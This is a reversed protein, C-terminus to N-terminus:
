TPQEIHHGGMRQWWFGVFFGTLGWLVAHLTLSKAVFESALHAPVGSIRPDGLHPAGLLHPSLILAVGSLRVWSGDNRLILWLGAATTAVTAFWWAQRAGLDAAAMGPLEPPLGLAPALGTSIFGAAAWIMARRENIPDGSLLMGALLILAFGVGTAITAIGTYFTREIGDRPGWQDNDGESASGPEPHDHVLILRAESGNFEAATTMFAASDESRTAHEYTEAELIIPTTSFEQLVAVALGALAGALLGVALVRTIM